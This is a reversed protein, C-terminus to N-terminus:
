VLLLMLGLVYLPYNWTHLVQYDFGMFILCGITGIALFITQKFFPSSALTKHPFSSSYLNLLAMGCILFLLILLIVDINSLLRRDIRFVKM